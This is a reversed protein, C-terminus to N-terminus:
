NGLKTEILINIDAGWQPILNTLKLGDGKTTM